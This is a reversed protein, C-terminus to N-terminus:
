AKSKPLQDLRSQLDDLQEVLSGVSKSLERREAPAMPKSIVDVWALTIRQKLGNIDRALKERESPM